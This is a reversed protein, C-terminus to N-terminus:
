KIKRWDIGRRGFQRTRLIYRKEPYEGLKKFYKMHKLCYKATLNKTKKWYAGIEAQKNCDSADCYVRDIRKNKQKAKPKGVNKVLTKEIIELLEVPLDKKGSWVIISKNFWRLNLNNGKIVVKTNDKMEDSLYINHRRKSKKM